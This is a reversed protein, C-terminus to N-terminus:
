TKEHVRGARRESGYGIDNKKTLEWGVSINEVLSEWPLVPDLCLHAGENVWLLKKMPVYFILVSVLLLVIYLSCSM